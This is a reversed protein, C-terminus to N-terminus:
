LKIKFGRHNERVCECTIRELGNATTHCYLELHLSLLAIQVCTTTRAHTHAASTLDSHLVTLVGQDESTKLLQTLAKLHVTVPNIIEKVM